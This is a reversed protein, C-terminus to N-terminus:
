SHDVGELASGQSSEAGSGPGPGPYDTTDFPESAVLKYKGHVVLGVIELDWILHKIHNIPMHILFDQYGAKVAEADVARFPAPLRGKAWIRKSGSLENQM